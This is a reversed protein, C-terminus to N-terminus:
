ALDLCDYLANKLVKMQYERNGNTVNIFYLFVINKEPDISVYTGAWGDWGFEGLGPGHLAAKETDDLVRMLNGYNYGELSYWNATERQSEDLQATRMYKATEKSIIRVPEGTKSYEAPLTGKNLLTLAFKAYDDPTSVLGAGGSEFEPKYKRSMTGLFPYDWPVYGNEGKDHMTVMRDYKEAPVYFDTDVMGLPEFIYKKLFQSYRMGSTVEIIAGLVDACLSYNWKTGPEYLLPYDGVKNMLEVTPIMEDPYKSEMPWFLQQGLILGAGTVDNPYEIGATMSLLHRITVKNKAPVTSGDPQLVTLDKFGPLFDEAFDNETFLGQEMAIMVALSTIPKSMSFMKFIDTDKIPRNDTLNDKGFCGRYIEKNDKFVLCVTGLADGRDIEEQMIKDLTEKVDKM